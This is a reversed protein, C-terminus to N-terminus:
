CSVVDASSQFLCSCHEKTLFHEWRIDFEELMLCMERLKKCDIDVCFPLFPIIQGVDSMSFGSETLQVIRNDIDSFSIGIVSPATTLGKFPSPDFKVNDGLKSQLHTVLKEQEPKYIKYRMVLKSDNDEEDTKDENLLKFNENTRQKNNSVTDFKDKDESLTKRNLNEATNRKNRNSKEKHIKEVKIKESKQKPKEKDVKEKGEDKTATKEERAERRRKQLALALQQPSIKKKKPNTDPYHSKKLEENSKTNLLMASKVNSSSSICRQRKHDALFWFLPRSPKWIVFYSHSTVRFYVAM